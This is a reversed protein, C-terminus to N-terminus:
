RANKAGLLMDGLAKGPNKKEMFHSGILFGSFGLKQMAEIESNNKIGSECIAYIHKPIFKILERSTNLDIKLTKLNRNNIGIVKPGLELAVELEAMDHVEIIPTLGLSVAYEHLEVLVKKSLFAVILLVANAGYELGQAIQAKTLIFDKLLIHAHPLTKRVDSIYEVNGAFYDPEALISLASAGNNLYEKAIAIHELEGHYIRGRSPSAFKIEAIIVPDNSGSFIQCFDLNNHKLNSAVSISEARAQVNTKIKALFDSM